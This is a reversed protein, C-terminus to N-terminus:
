LVLDIRCLHCAPVEVQLPWQGQAVTKEWGTCSGISIGDLGAAGVVDSYQAPRLAAVDLMRVKVMVGQQVTGRQAAATSGAGGGGAAGAAAEQCWDASDLMLQRSRHKSSNVYVVGAHKSSHVVVIGYKGLARDPVYCCGKPISQMLFQLVLFNSHVTIQPAPDISSDVAAPGSGEAPSRVTAGRQAGVPLSGGRAAPGQEAQGDTSGQVAGDAAAAAVGAAATSAAGAEAYTELPVELLGWNSGVGEVAQRCYHTVAPM